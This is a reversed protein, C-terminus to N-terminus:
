GSLEAQLDCKNGLIVIPVGPDLHERLEKMWFELSQVSRDDDM